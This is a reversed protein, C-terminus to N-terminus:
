RPTPYARWIILVRCRICGLHTSTYKEWTHRTTSKHRMIFLGLCLSMRSFLVSRKEFRILWSDPQRLGKPPPPPQVVDHDPLQLLIYIITSPIACIIVTRKGPPIPLETISRETGEADKCILVLDSKTPMLFFDCYCNTQTAKPFHLIFTEFCM